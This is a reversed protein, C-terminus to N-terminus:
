SELVLEARGSYKISTRRPTSSAGTLRLIRRQTQYGGPPTNALIPLGVDAVGAHDGATGPRASGRRGIRLPVSRM